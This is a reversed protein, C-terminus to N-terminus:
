KPLAKTADGVAKSADGAAAKAQTDLIVKQVATIVDKVAAQQDATLTYKGALAQLQTVAGSYDAKKIAAVATDVASKVAPEAAQFAATLKSTDVSAAPTASSPPTPTGPEQKSCGAAVFAAAALVTLILSNTKM